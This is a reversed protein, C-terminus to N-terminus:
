KDKRLADDIDQDTANLIKKVQDRSIGGMVMARINARREETRGEAFGELRGAEKICEERAVAFM